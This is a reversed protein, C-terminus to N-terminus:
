WNKTTEVKVPKAKKKKLKKQLQKEDNELAQLLRRADEKSIRQKGSGGQPSQQQQKKQDQQQNQRNQNQQDQQDKQDQQNKKQQQKKQDQKDQQKQNQKKKQQQQKRLQRLAYTLNHKTEIDNPDYRLAQKYASISEKLKKAKLLANGMNHYARALKQDSVDRHTLSSFKDAAEEYKEQKYLADGVNFNAEFSNADKELAKRYNVESQTYDKDEFAQNGKRIFKREAQSYASLSILLFFLATIGNFRM